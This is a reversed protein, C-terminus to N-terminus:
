SLRLKWIAMRCVYIGILHESIPLGLVSAVSNANYTFGEVFGLKSVFNHWIIRGFVDLYM